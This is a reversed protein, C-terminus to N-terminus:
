ERVDKLVEYYQYEIGVKSVIFKTDATFTNLDVRYQMPIGGRPELIFVQDWIRAKYEDDPLWYLEPAGWLDKFQQDNKVEGIRWGTTRAKEKEIATIYNKQIFRYLYTARLIVISIFEMAPEVKFIGQKQNAREGKMTALLLKYSEIAYDYFTEWNIPSKKESKGLSANVSSLM